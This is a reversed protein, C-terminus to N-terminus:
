SQIEDETDVKSLDTDSDIRTDGSTSVHLIIPITDMVIFYSINSFSNIWMLILGM